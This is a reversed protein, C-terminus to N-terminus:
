RARPEAGRRHLLDLCGDGHEIRRPGLGPVPARLYRGEVLGELGGAHEAHPRADPGQRDRPACVEARVQLAGKGRDHRPGPGGPRDHPQRVHRRTRRVEGQRPTKLVHVRVLPRPAPPVKRPRGLKVHRPRAHGLNEAPEPHRGTGQPEDVGGVPERRRRRVAQEQECQRDGGGVRVHERVVRWTRKGFVRVLRHLHERPVPVAGPARELHEQEGGGPAHRVRRVLWYLATRHIMDHLAAM